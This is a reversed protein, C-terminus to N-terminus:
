LVAEAKKVYDEILIRLANFSFRDVAESSHNCDNREQKLIKHLYFLRKLKDINIGNSIRVTIKATISQNNKDTVKYEVNNGECRLVSHRLQNKFRKQENDNSNSNNDDTNYKERLVRVQGPEDKILNKLERYYNTFDIPMVKNPINGTLRKYDLSYFIKNADRNPKNKEWEQGLINMFEDKDDPSFSIFEYTIIRDSDKGPKPAECVYAKPMKDEILTLAQQLMNNELCWKILKIYYDNQGLHDLYLKEEMLPVLKKLMAVKLDRNDIDELNNNESNNKKSDSKLTNICDRINTLYDDINRVDCISMDKSFAVMNELLKKVEEYEKGAERDGAKDSESKFIDNLAIARGTTVFENVGNIMQFMEYIYTIDRIRHEAPKHENPEDENSKDEDFQDKDPINVARQSYVVKQCNIGEFELYRVITTMLFAIDRMGGTYDVYVDSIGNETLKASIDGFIRQAMHNTDEEEESFPKYDNEEGKHDYPISIIEFSDNKCKENKEIYREQLTKVTEQFNVWAAKGKGTMVKHSTICLIYLKKDSGLKIKQGPEPEEVGAMRALAMKLLCEVPADNTQTGKYIEGNVFRYNAEESGAKYDSLFLLLAANERQKEGQKNEAM